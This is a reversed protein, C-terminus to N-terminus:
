PQYPCKFLFYACCVINSCVGLMNNVKEANRLVEIDHM